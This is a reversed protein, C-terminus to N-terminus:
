KVSKGTGSRAAKRTDWGKRARASAKAMQQRTRFNVVNGLTRRPIAYFITGDSEHRFREVLEVGSPADAATATGKPRGDQYERIAALVQNVSQLRRRDKLGEREACEALFSRAEDFDEKPELKLTDEEWIQRFTEKSERERREKKREESGFWTLLDDFNDPLEKAFLVAELYFEMAKQIAVKPSDPGLIAALKALEIPDPSPITNQQVQKRKKSNTPKKNM